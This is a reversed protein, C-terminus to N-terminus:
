RVEKDFFNILEILKNTPSNKGPGNEALRTKEEEENEEKKRAYLIIVGTNLEEASLILGKAKKAVGIGVKSFMKRKEGM